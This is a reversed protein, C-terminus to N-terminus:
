YEHRRISNQTDPTVFVRIARKFTEEIKVPKVAFADM